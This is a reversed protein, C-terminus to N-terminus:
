WFGLIGVYGGLEFDGFTRLLADYWLRRGSAQDETLSTTFFISGDIDGDTFGLSLAGEPYSSIWSWDPSGDDVPDFAWGAPDLLARVQADFGPDITSPIIYFQTYTVSKYVCWGDPLPVRLLSEGEDFVALPAGADPIPCGRADFSEGYWGPRPGDIVARGGADPDAPRSPDGVPAESVTVCGALGVMLLAAATTVATLTRFRTTLTSM